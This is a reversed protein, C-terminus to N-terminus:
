VNTQNKSEVDYEIADNSSNLSKQKSRFFEIKQLYEKGPQHNNKKSNCSGCLPFLNDFNNTGKRQCKKPNLPYIHDQCLRKFGVHHPEHKWGICWGDLSQKLALWNRPKHDGRAGRRKSQVKAIIAAWRDPNKKIWLKCQDNRHKRFTEDEAYRKKLYASSRKRIIKKEHEPLLEYSFIVGSRNKRRDMANQHSIKKAELYEKKTLNLKTLLYNSKERNKTRTQQAVLSDFKNWCFPNKTEM